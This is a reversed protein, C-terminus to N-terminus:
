LYKQLRSRTRCQYLRLNSNIGASLFTSDAVLSETSWAQTYIYTIYQLTIGSIDGPRPCAVQCDAAADGACRLEWALVSAYNMVLRKYKM